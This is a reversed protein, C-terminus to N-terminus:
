CLKEGDEYVHWIFPGQHITGIYKEIGPPIPHGTGIIYFRHDTYGPIVVVDSKSIEVEAWICPECNPDLGVHLFKANHPARVRCTGGSIDLPYKHITRM